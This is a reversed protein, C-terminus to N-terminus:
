ELEGSEQSDHKSRKKMELLMEVGADRGIPTLFIYTTKDCCLHLREIQEEKSLFKEPYWMPQDQLDFCVDVWGDRVLEKLLDSITGFGYDFRRYFSDFRIGNRVEAAFVFILIFLENRMQTWKDEM